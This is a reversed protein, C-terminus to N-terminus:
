LMPELLDDFPPAVLVLDPCARTLEPFLVAPGFAAVHLKPNLGFSLDLSALLL